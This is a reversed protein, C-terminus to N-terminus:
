GDSKSRLKISDYILQIIALPLGIFCLAKIYNTSPEGNIVWRWVYIILISAYFSSSLLVIGRKIIGEVNYSLLKMSVSITSTTLMFYIENIYRGGHWQTLQYAVFVVISTIAFGTAINSKNISM